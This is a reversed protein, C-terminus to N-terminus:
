FADPLAAKSACGHRHHLCCHSHVIVNTNDRKSRSKRPPSTRPSENTQQISAYTHFPKIPSVVM